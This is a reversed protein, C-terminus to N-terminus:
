GDGTLGRYSGSDVNITSGTSSGTTVRTAAPKTHPMWRAYRVV